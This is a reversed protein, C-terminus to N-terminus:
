CPNACGALEEEAHRHALGFHYERVMKFHEREVYTRGKSGGQVQYTQFLNRRHNVVKTPRGISASQELDLFDSWCAIDVARSFRAKSCRIPHVPQEPIRRWLCRGNIVRRAGAEMKRSWTICTMSGIM